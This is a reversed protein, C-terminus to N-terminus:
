VECIYSDDLPEDDPTPASERVALQVGQSTEKGKAAVAAFYGSNETLYDLEPASLRRALIFYPVEFARQESVCPTTDPPTYTNPVDVAFSTEPLSFVDQVADITVRGDTLTGDRVRGIRLAMKPIGRKPDAFAIVDGPHYVDLSQDGVLTFRRLSTSAARLDRQAVKLALAATPIGPYSKSASNLAGGNALIAAPNKVGVVRDQDTIPDHWTVSIANVSKGLAGRQGGRVEILGNETTLPTMTSLDYDARILKLTMLGTIRSQYLVGGIHDLVQQVFSDIGDKRTWKLCLGFSENFLTVAAATFSEDDIKSRSLGRGWERNTLCEYIIHAPNMAYAFSPRTAIVRHDAIEFEWAGVTGSAGPTGAGLSDPFVNNVTEANEAYSRRHIVEDNIYCVFLKARQDFQFRITANQPLAGPGGLVIRFPEGTEGSVSLEFYTQPVGFPYANSGRGYFIGAYWTESTGQFAISVAFIRLPIFTPDFYFVLSHSPIRRSVELADLSAIGPGYTFYGESTYSTVDWANINSLRLAGNPYNASSGIAYPGSAEGTNVSSPSSLAINVLTFDTLYTNSTPISALGPQFVDGDWGKLIRNFRFKWAKPYPNNASVQGDYFLTFMRRFASIGSGLMNQLRTSAVQTPGGLMVDLTGKVGGEKDDGGFLNPANINITQNTSVNGRWATRDGVKVEHLEDVPGRGIGMHIGFYYRYGVVQSKKGGSM